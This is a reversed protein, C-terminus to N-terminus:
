AKPILHDWLPGKQGNQRMKQMFPKIMEYRDPFIWQRINVNQEAAIKSISATTIKDAQYFVPDLCDHENEVLGEKRAIEYLDTGPYIRVGAFPFYVTRKIHASNDFSQRLTDTTEGPGGFILYHAYAIDHKECLNSADIIEDVTFDKKYVKLMSDCLSDTGFEVHELGSRKLIALYDSEIRSPAFFAGWRIPLKRRILEEALSIEHQQTINFISDVIFFYDVKHDTYLKEIEDVIQECPANHMCRGDILPYTCYNCRKPCGRKTQIGIMGGNRWYYDVLRADHLGRWSAQPSATNVTIIRDDVSSEAPNDLLRCLANEGPGIIGYDAKSDEVIQRAFLSFGSGGLVVPASTVSKISKVLDIYYSIYSRSKESDTNDINRLSLGVMDVQNQKLYSLVKEQGDVIMDLQTVEYGQESLAWALRAVGVPYVAVPTTEQNASILVIQKL